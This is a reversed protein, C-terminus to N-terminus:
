VKFFFYESRQPFAFRKRGAKRQVERPLASSGGGRPAISLDLAPRDGKKTSYHVPHNDHFNEFHIEGEANEGKKNINERVAM